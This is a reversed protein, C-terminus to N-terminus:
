HTEAHVMDAFTQSLPIQPTWGTLQTLRSADGVSYQEDWGRRREPAAVLEARVGAARALRDFLERFTHGTGTAVNYTEGPMGQELLLLYARAVDRVDLYDRVADPDGFPIRTEGRRLRGLWDAILRGRQQLPGTHPWPRAVLLPLDHQRAFQWACIETGLKTAAYASLPLTPDTERAPRRDVEGYVVSSSVVLVKRVGGRAVLADLLRATGGANVAWAFGADAGADTSGSVAALHVVLEPPEQVADRVTEPRRLDMTVWSVADFEATTLIPSATRVEVRTGTVQHGAQLLLKILYSGAFGDAGTVLVRM